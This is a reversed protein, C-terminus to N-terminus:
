EKSTLVPNENNWNIIAQERTDAYAGQRNCNRPYCVVYWKGHLPDPEQSPYGREHGPSFVQSVFAGEGCVKCPNIVPISM